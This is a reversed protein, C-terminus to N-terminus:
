HRHGVWKLSLLARQLKNKNKCSIGTLSKSWLISVAAAQTITEESQLCCLTMIGQLVFVLSNSSVALLGCGVAVCELDVCFISGKYIKNWAVKFYGIQYPILRM